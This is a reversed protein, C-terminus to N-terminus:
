IAERVIHAFSMHMCVVGADGEEGRFLQCGKRSAGDHNVMTRSFGLVCYVPDVVTALAVDTSTRGSARIGDFGPPAFRATHSVKLGAIAALAKLTHPLSSDASAM